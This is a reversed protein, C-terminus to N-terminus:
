ITMDYGDSIKVEVNNTGDYAHLFPLTTGTEPEGGVEAGTYRMNVKFSVDDDATGAYTGWWIHLATDAGSIFNDLPTNAGETAQSWPITITGTVDLDGLVYKVPETQDYYVPTANNTFTLEFGPLHVETSAVYMGAVSGADKWLLPNVAGFTSTAPTADYDFATTHTHGILEVSAKLAGGTEASLTLSRVICGHIAHSDAAAASMKRMAAGWWTCGNSTYPVCTKTFPTSAGETVGSQFLLTFFGALTDANADFEYTFVPMLHGQQFEYGAGTRRYAVGTAKRQDIIQPGPELHPHNTLPIAFTGAAGLGYDAGSAFTGATSISTKQFQVHYVDESQVRLACM